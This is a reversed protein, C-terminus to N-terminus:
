QISSSSFYFYFRMDGRQEDQRLKLGKAMQVRKSRGQEDRSEVCCKEFCMFVLYLVGGKRRRGCSRCTRILLSTPPSPPRLIM